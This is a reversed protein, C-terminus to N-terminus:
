CPCLLSLQHKGPVTSGPPSAPGPLGMLGIDGPLGPPGPHGQDGKPGVFFLQNGLFIKM